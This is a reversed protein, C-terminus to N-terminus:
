PRRMARFIGIGIFLAVQSALLWSWSADLVILAVASVLASLIAWLMGYNSGSFRAEHDGAAYFTVICIFALLIPAGMM